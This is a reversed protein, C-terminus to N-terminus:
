GPRFGGHAPGGATGTTVGLVGALFLLWMVNWKSNGSSRSAIM